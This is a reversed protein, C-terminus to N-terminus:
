VPSRDVNGYVMPVHDNRNKKPVSLESSLKTIPLDKHLSMQSRDELVIRVKDDDHIYKKVKGRYVLLVDTDSGTNITTTSPSHWYIDVDTNILSNSVLESFRVGDYIANSVDLNVSSIQYNRREIDVTEKISPINILVPKYFIDSHVLPNTSIYVYNNPMKIWILPILSTEKGKLDNKFNAPLNLAM